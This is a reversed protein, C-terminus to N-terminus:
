RACRAWVGGRENGRADVVVVRVVRARSGRGRGGGRTGRGADGVRARRGRGRAGM